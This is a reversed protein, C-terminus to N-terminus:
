SSSGGTFVVSSLSRRRVSSRQLSEALQDVETEANNCERERMEDKLRLQEAKAKGVAQVAGQLADESAFELVFVDLTEWMDWALRLVHPGKPVPWTNDKSADVAEDDLLLEVLPTLLLPKM